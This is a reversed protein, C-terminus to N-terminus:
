DECPGATQEILARLRAMVRSRAIYVAGVSLGLEEAVARPTAGDVSTRWFARWTADLFEPRAREAAWHFLRRRYEADFLATEEADAAPQQHLLDLVHTDGTGQVHRRRAVLLNIALNRAIRFLWGRFSGRTRDPDWRDVAAAVARYVEQAIDAADASQLGRARAVRDILPGYIAVFEAWAQEDRPDKLRVLLSNRTTPPGGM